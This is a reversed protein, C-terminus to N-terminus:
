FKLTLIISHPKNLVLHKLTTINVFDKFVFVTKFKKIEFHEKSKKYVHPSKLLTIKKKTKPLDFKSFKINVKKFNLKLFEIYLNLTKQSYSSLKIQYM